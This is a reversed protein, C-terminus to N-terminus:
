PCAPLGRVPVDGNMRGCIPRYTPRGGSLTVKVLTLGRHGSGNLTHQDHTFDITGSAGENARLLPLELLVSGSTVVSSGATRDRDRVTLGLPNFAKQAAQALASTCDHTLAMQGDALLPPGVGLVNRALLFFANTQDRGGAVLNPLHNFTTYYVTLTQPLMIQHRGSGFSARAM